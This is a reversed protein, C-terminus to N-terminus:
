SPDQGTGPAGRVADSHEDSGSGVTSGAGASPAGTEGGSETSSRPGGRTARLSTVTVIVLTLIIIALSLPTPVEPVGPIVTHLYHLILKVGIFALIFALGYTLHVLRDLLGVLLFYLARLGLLAFANATFVIYSSDTIGFIAPISDFAFVLDVSLIVVVVIFLPTVGFVGNKRRTLQGDHAGGLDDEDGEHVTVVRRVLRVALNDHMDKPEAGHSRVLSVATYILFLGFVVFVFAFEAVIAAGVIILVARMVLAGVVGWLLVKQQHRKPVAFQGLIVAFIFLNDVSLSKEVLFGAFYETGRAAGTFLFVGVGFLLAVVIYITSWIAAERFTVEHPSRAHWIDVGVLVAIGGLTAAWVWFPVVLPAVTM